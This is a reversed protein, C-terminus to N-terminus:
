ADFLCTRKFCRQAFPSTKLVWGSVLIVDYDGSVLIVDYNSYFSWGDSSENKESNVMPSLLRKPPFLHIAKKLKNM